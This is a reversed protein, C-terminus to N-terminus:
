AMREGIVTFDQDMPIAPTGAIAAHADLTRGDQVPVWRKKMVVGNDNAAKLRLSM